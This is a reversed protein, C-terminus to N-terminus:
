HKGHYQKSVAIEKCTIFELLAPVGKQTQEIGRRIAPVIQAIETVREGYGGFARAMAAYDGSIDTARYKETSVPMIPIEMAMSFNNLLVSLIPIRERVATEFDMGTFGIAADGWVNICLKDPCALKAGMALGLGYGLQTTKGWGIYTLPKKTVWFPALQDRPSGADHTIITNAVDVTAQLDRLVRYPSFPAEDSNIRPAWEDLWAKRVQAIEQAVGSFGRPKQILREIEVGLADLTLQADGILGIEARVDKNLHNPDLTAHIFKKGPPMAIGFATETFSCGVGFIWDAKALFHPVTRPFANGGAGLALPHDEPFASKGQLSTAVPAGLMEAFRRLSDWARAYHIGQGAYIVLNKAEVLATAAKRVDAPDPGYRTSIVPEYSWPEPMEEAFLDLPIEVLAPGGRGNRLRSFARRFINPIEAAAMIPEASKTVSRVSAVSNFNPDVYALRRAYGMPLVLIPVSEGYAQAVGGFSNESGPGHQMAFVGIRRGSTLRSLADAMHLGVREQRVIIPRIGAAAATELVHNVPYGFILDVGERKLIEAIADGVKM